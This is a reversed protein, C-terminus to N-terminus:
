LHGEGKRYLFYNQCSIIILVSYSIVDNTLHNIIINDFKNCFTTIHNYFSKSSTQANRNIVRMRVKLLIHSRM